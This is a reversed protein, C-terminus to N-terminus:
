PTRRYYHSTIFDINTLGCLEFDELTSQSIKVKKGNEYFDITNLAHRNMDQRKAVLAKIDEIDIRVRMTDEKLTLSELVIKTM